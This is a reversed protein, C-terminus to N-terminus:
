ATEAVHSLLRQEIIGRIFDFDEAIAFHGTNRTCIEFRKSTFKRWIQADIPRFYEDRAGRFCTIPVPFPDEPLYIYRNAMAFEARVTPLV